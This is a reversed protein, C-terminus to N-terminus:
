EKGESAKKRAQQRYVKALDDEGLKELVDAYHSLVVSSEKGGYMMAHKFYPKAEAAKGQLYLIWGYTDLYTANDPEAEVTKKSMACAKKLKKGEMSLYYAYNNLVPCYDPNIKLANDYAKFAKASEGTEHRMDGITSWASLAVASDGPAAALMKECNDIIGRYNKLNYEGTNAFDLFGPEEPFRSFAKGSEKVVYEWDRTYVLMQIYGATATISEPNIEMVKRFCDVAKDNRETVYYYLGATQLITSDEPHAASTVAMTSDFQDRFTRIFQRDAQKIVAQLYDAKAEAPVSRDAMLGDLTRFYEPYNRIVRYVEAKGLLAPAYGSDIELALNYRALATSDNYMGMAYDGLMSLIQPSAYEKSYDDLVTFAEEHRGQQRLINFKTMVSGDSKGFQTEIDDITKLAEDFNKQDIYLRAISYYLDTKKPFDKMLSRYMDITLDTRDTMAYLGALMYRYWYNASDLSVAKRLSTEAAEADNMQMRVLGRYYWAGDIEPSSKCIAGLLADAEAIRGNEYMQVADVLRNEDAKRKQEQASSIYQATTVFFLVATTYELIRGINRM